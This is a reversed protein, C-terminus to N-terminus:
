RGEAGPSSADVIFVQNFREADPGVTRVYAIHRGDPSFVCAEPRPSSEDPSRPTLRTTRGTSVDTVCVSNDMVHAVRTGDPSWTFCSAVGWPNDTVRRPAEGGNPSVTWFQVVGADDKMLLGIRTGDPASRLWHRPGQIGPHKRDATFTLRRQVVGKPPAPRRTATGELPGGDGPVTLDDPLDAIFAESINEGSATRVNGQFALARRRRTGDPTLYGDTGIWAEEFARSIEDSGPRPNATLRTVIVSFAVGDHNRPHDASVTVPDPVAADSIPALVSVGVARLNTEHAPTEDAFRRLVEDEYTFSVWRGDGSFLHLHTGGRLAGPTFPPTLDRADLNVVVGPHRVDLLVGRRRSAGYTWEPTPHEPGHIFVVKQGIPSYTAVGVHAEATAGYLVKVEGTEVNVQEVRDGDFQTGAVDSRVDYVVWKSDPSWVQANTLVHGYAGTTLQSEGAKPQHPMVIISVVLIISTRMLFSMTRTRHARATPARSGTGGSEASARPVNYGTEVVAGRGPVLARLWVAM